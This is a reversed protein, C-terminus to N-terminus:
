SSLKLKKTRRKEAGQQEDRVRAATKSAIGVSKGSGSSMASAKRKRTSSSAAKSAEDNVAEDEQEFGNSLTRHLRSKSPSAWQPMAGNKKTTRSSSSSSAVPTSEENETDDSIEIVNRVRRRRTRPAPIYGDDSDSAYGDNSAYGNDSEDTEEGSSGENNRVTNTVFTAETSRAKGKAMANAAAEKEEEVDSSEGGSQSSDSGYADDEDDDEENAVAYSPQDRDHDVNLYSGDWQNAADAREMKEREDDSESGSGVHALQDEEEAWYAYPKPAIPAPVLPVGEVAKCSGIRSRERKVVAM